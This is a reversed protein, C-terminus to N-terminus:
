KRKHIFVFWAIGMILIAILFGIPLKIIPTGPSVALLFTGVVLMGINIFNMMASANAKDESTSTAISAGNGVIISNGLMLIFGAGILTTLNIISFYFLVTLGIMAILDIIFGFLMLEKASFRSALAVSVLSGLATGIFPILGIAGYAQPSLGLTDIAIFPSSAIYLYVCMGSLAFFFTTSILLKNNLAICYNKLVQRIHIADKQLEQATEALLKAPIILFLGYILLFYFCSIWRFHTTLIGGIFTAIGPV